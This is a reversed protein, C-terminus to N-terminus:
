LHPFEAFKLDLSNLGHKLCSDPFAPRSAVCLHAVEETFVSRCLPLACDLDSHLPSHGQTKIRRGRGRLTLIRETHGTALTTHHQASFMPMLFSPCVAIGLGKRPYNKHCSLGIM